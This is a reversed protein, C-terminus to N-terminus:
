DSLSVSKVKEWWKEAEDSSWVPVDTCAELMRRLSLASQPRKAPEKELCAMVVAELGEPVAGQVRQSLPIPDKQVHAMATATPTKEDFVVQGSLLWYAVCGLGYIDARIDVSEDGIAIEPALFAPTGTTHGDLTVHVSEDPAMLKVLGFDLLKVFDPDTGLRCLIFNTPKVDRHVMGRQHAEELSHCAQLLIHVVRAPPQPGFESVLQELDYGELLEMAYFFGGEDTLGFDYLEVTHPSRLSAMTQAEQEFRKRLVSAQRGTRALLVEPRMIKIAADRKLWRHHARWVEGMGGRAILEILQYAGMEKAKAASWELRLVRASLFASIAAILYSPFYYLVAHQWSLWSHGVAPNMLIHVAPGASAALLGTVLAVVPPMPILLTYAAIWIAIASFGRVVEDPSWPISNEVVAIGCAVLVEFGLGMRLFLLPRVRGSREVAIIAASLFLLLTETLRVLERRESTTSIPQTFSTVVLIAVTSVLCAAALWRLRRPGREVLAAPMAEFSLRAQGGETETLLLRPHTKTPSEESM